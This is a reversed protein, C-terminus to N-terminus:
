IGVRLSNLIRGRNLRAEIGKEYNTLLTMTWLKKDQFLMIFDGQLVANGLGPSKLDFILHLGDVGDINIPFADRLTPTIQMNLSKGIGGIFSNFYFTGREKTFPPPDVKFVMEYVALINSGEQTLVIEERAFQPDTASETIKPQVRNSLAISAGMTGFSQRVTAPGSPVRVRVSQLIREMQVETDTTAFVDIIWQTSYGYITLIRRFNQRDGARWTAKVLRAELGDILLKDTGQMEYKTKGGEIAAQMEFYQKASFDPDHAGPFGVTLERIEVMALPTGGEYITVANTQRPPKPAAPLDVYLGEKGIAFTNWGQISNVTDRMTRLIREVIDQHDKRNPDIQISATVANRKELFVIEYIRYSRYGRKFQKTVLYGDRTGLKYKSASSTFETVGPKTKEAELINKLNSDINFVNGAEPTEIQAQINMGDFSSEYRTMGPSTSEATQLDFPMEAALFTHGLSRIAWHRSGEREVKISSFLQAALDRSAADKYTAVVIWSAASNIGGDPGIVLVTRDGSGYSLFERGSIKGSSIASLQGGIKPGVEAFLGAPDKSTYIRAVEIRLGGAEAAWNNPFISFASREAWAAGGASPDAPMDMLLAPRGLAWRSVTQAQTIVPILAILGLVAIRLIKPM